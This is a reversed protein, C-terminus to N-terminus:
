INKKLKIKEDLLHQKIQIREHLQRDLDVSQAQLRCERDNEANIESKFQESEKQLKINYTKEEEIQIALAQNQEKVINLQTELRQHISSLRQDLNVFKVDIRRAKTKFSNLKKTWNQFIEQNAANLSIDLQQLFKQKELKRQKQKERIEQKM